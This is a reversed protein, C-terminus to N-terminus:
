CSINASIINAKPLQTKLLQCSEKSVHTSGLHVEKLKTLGALPSVDEVDTNELTLIELNKINSLVSLDKIKTDDLHLRTLTTLNKLPSFDDLDQLVYGQSGEISLIRLKTLKSVGSIDNIDSAYEAELYELNILNGLPTINKIGDTYPPLSYSTICLLNSIGWLAEEGESKLKEDLKNRSETTLVIGENDGRWNKWHETSYESNHCLGDATFEAPSVTIGPPPSTPTLGGPSSSICGSFLIVIVLLGVLLIKSKM